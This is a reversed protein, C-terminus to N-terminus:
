LVTQLENVDIRYTKSIITPNKNLKFRLQLNPCKLSLSKNINLHKSIVNAKSIFETGYYYFLILSITWVNHNGKLTYLFVIIIFKFQGVVFITFFSYRKHNHFWNIYVPCRKFCFVFVFVFRFISFFVFLLM